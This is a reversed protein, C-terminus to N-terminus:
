FPRMMPSREREAKGRGVQHELQADQAVYQESPSEQDGLDRTAEQEDALGVSVEERM